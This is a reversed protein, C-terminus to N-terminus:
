PSVLVCDKKAERWAFTAKLVLRPSHGHREGDSEFCKGRRLVWGLWLFPTRSDVWLAGVFTPFCLNQYM